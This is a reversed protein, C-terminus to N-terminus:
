EEVSYYFLHQRYGEVYTLRVRVTQEGQYVRWTKTDIVVYEQNCFEVLSKEAARSLPEVVYRYCTDDASKFYYFRNFANEPGKWRITLVLGGDSTTTEEFTDTDSIRSVIEKKTFGLYIQPGAASMLVTFALLILFRKM